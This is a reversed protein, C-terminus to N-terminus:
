DVHSSNLRTSKRDAGTMFLKGVRSGDFGARAGGIVCGVILEVDVWFTGVRDGITTSSIGM